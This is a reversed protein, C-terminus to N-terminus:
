DCGESQKRGDTGLTIVQGLQAVEERSLATPLTRGTYGNVLEILIISDQGCGPRFKDVTRISNKLDVLAYDRRYLGSHLRFIGDGTLDAYLAFGYKQAM